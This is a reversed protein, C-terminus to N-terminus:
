KKLGEKEAYGFELSKRVLKKYTTLNKNPIEAKKKSKGPEPIKQAGAENKSTKPLKELLNPAKLRARETSSKRSTLKKKPPPSSKGGEWLLCFLLATLSILAFFLVGLPKWLSRRPRQIVLTKRNRRLPKFYPDNDKPTLSLHISETLGEPSRETQFLSIMSQEFEFLDQLKKECETCIQLHEELKAEIFPDLDGALYHSLKKEVSRHKM